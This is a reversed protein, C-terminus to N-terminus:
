NSYHKRNKTTPNCAASYERLRVKVWEPLCPILHRRFVKDWMGDELREALMYRPRIM